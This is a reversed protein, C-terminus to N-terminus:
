SSSGCYPNVESRSDRGKNQNRQRHKEGRSGHLRIRTKGSRGEGGKRGRRGRARCWARKGMLLRCNGLAGWGRLGLPPVVPNM